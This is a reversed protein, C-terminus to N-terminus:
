ERTRQRQAGELWTAALKTLKVKAIKYQHDPHTEKFEFYREVGKEWEIYVEPDHSTGDFEHVDVRMTKDERMNEANPNHYPFQTHQPAANQLATVAVSLQNVMNVLADFKDNNDM